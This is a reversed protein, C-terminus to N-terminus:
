GSKAPLPSAASLTRSWTLSPATPTPQVRWTQSLFIVSPERLRVLTDDAIVSSAFFGGILVMLISAFLNKKM